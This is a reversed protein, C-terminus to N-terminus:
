PQDSDFFASEGATLRALYQGCAADASCCLELRSCTGDMSLVDM